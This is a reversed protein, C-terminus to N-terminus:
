PDGAGPDGVTGGADGSGATDGDSEDSQSRASPGVAVIGNVTAYSSFYDNRHLLNGNADYVLRSRSVDHGDHPYEVRRSTGPAMSSDVVTTDIARRHNSTVADTIVVTRNLPVSWIQFTVSGNGGFGRVVIPHETDNRFTMDQKWGGIISVTADLGDPYRDIYYYHNLRIGMELGARLAANFMTTSTSCIGGALAVGQTSRGNIIAGGYTYGREVTIPGLSDWFSFWEGPAVNRGDIDQAPININAGFGNGEGPIYYTTWSSIMEMQPRVAEAETTTVSPETLDVVLPVSAVSAGGARRALVDLVKASSEAVNLERGPEAPIVGGLGGGAAVTIRANVPAQNVDKVRAKIAATIAAEDVIATYADGDHPGISIAAALKKARVVLPEEGEITLRLDVAMANAASAAREAAATDVTPPVTTASLEVRTDAPHPNDVAAALAAHVDAEALELGDAGKLATFGAGERVVSAERPVHSVQAAVDAAIAALADGDYAHVIVPLTTRHVLSRLRGIGDAIPNRSHGVGLAADLMAEMEYGRGLEAYPVSIEIEGVAVVAQGTDLAPLEDALRRAAAPRDLGGLEVGGVSVGRLAASGTSVGIAVSAGVFLLIGLALTAGFGVLLSRRAPRTAIPRIIRRSLTATTM